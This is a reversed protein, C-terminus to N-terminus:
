IIYGEMLQDFGALSIGCEFGELGESVDEKFRKLSSLKGTFVEQGNRTLIVLCTRNFKGKVVFCGAVTGSKSLKFVKRVEAKGLFVKIKPELMGELAAKIDAALEYIINYTKVDVGEKAILEKALDDIEINFGLILADSAAALVVDSSNINGVASHIFEIRIETVNLKDLTEKIAELSGQMDAKLILRLEKIKGESIQNHLDELSVRKVPKVQEERDKQVRLEVLEKAEKEDAITFFQEGALPVGSIGLVEVPELAADNNGACTM